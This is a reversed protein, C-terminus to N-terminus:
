SNKEECFEENIIIKRALFFQKHHSYLRNSPTSFLFLPIKDIFFSIYLDFCSFKRIDIINQLTEVTIHGSRAKFAHWIPEFRPQTSTVIPSSHKSSLTQSFLCDNAANSQMWGSEWKSLPRYRCPPCSPAPPWTPWLCARGDQRTLLYCPATIQINTTPELLQTLNWIYCTSILMMDTQGLLQPLPTCPLSSTAPEAFNHFTLSPSNTSKITSVAGSRRRQLRQHQCVTYVDVEWHFETWSLRLLLHLSRQWNHTPSGMLHSSFNIQYPSESLWHLCPM